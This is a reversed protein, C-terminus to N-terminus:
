DHWCYFSQHRLLEDLLVAQLLILDRLDKSNRLRRHAFVGFFDPSVNNVQISHFDDLRQYCIHYCHNHVSFILSARKQLGEALRAGSNSSSADDAFEAPLGFWFDFYCFAGEAEVSSRSLTSPPNM